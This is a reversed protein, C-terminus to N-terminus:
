QPKRTPFVPRREPLWRSGLRPNSPSCGASPTSGAATDTLKNSTASSGTAPSSSRCPIRATRRAGVARCAAPNGVARAIDLYTARAGFPVRAVADLVDRQFPTGTRHLPITFERRDGALFERIQRVHPEHEGASAPVASRVNRARWAASARSRREDCFLIGALGQDTTLVELRGIEPIGTEMLLLPLDADARIRGTPFRRRVAKAQPVSAENGCGMGVTEATRKSQSPVRASLKAAM